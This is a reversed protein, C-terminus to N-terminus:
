MTMGLSPPCWWGKGGTDTLVAHGVQARIPCAARFLPVDSGSCFGSAISGHPRRLVWLFLWVLALAALSQAVDLSLEGKVPGWRSRRSTTTRKQDPGPQPPTAPSRQRRPAPGWLRPGPCHPRDGVCGVQCHMGPSLGVIPAPVLRWASRGVTGRGSCGAAGRVQQVPNPKGVLIGPASCGPPLHRRRGKLWMCALGRALYRVRRPIAPRMRGPRTVTAAHNGRDPSIAGSDTNLDESM